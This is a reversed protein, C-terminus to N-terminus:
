EDEGETFDFTEKVLVGHEKNDQKENEIEEKMEDEDKLPKLIMYYETGDNMFDKGGEETIKIFLTRDEEKIHFEPKEELLDMNWDLWGSFREKLLEVSMKTYEDTLDFDESMMVGRKLNM